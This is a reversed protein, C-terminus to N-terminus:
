LSQTKKNIHQRIDVFSDIVAMFILLAFLYYSFFFASIYFAINWARGLKTMHIVGHVLATASILLPVILIPLITIFTDTSQYIAACVIITAISYVAPVKLCRWEISYGGPNYLASQWYRAILICMFSIFSVLAGTSGIISSRIYPQYKLIGSLLPEQEIATTLLDTTQQVALDLMSANFTILAGSALLGFVVSVILTYPLSVSKRLIIALLSTSLYVHLPFYDGLAYLVVAPLSGFLITGLVDKIGYRLIVLASISASIWSLFPLTLCVAMVLLSNQKSQM